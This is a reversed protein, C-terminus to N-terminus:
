ALVCSFSNGVIGREPRMGEWPFGLLFVCGFWWPNVPNVLNV